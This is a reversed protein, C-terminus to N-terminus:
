RASRWRTVAAIVPGVATVHAVFVPIWNPPPFSQHPLRTLPLAVLQMFMYFFAGFLVGSTLWHEQVWRFIRYVAFYMAAAGLAVCVHLALGLLMTAAGGDFSAKGLVSSAIGQLMRFPSGGKVLVLVIIYGIDTVACVLGAPLVVVAVDVLSFRPLKSTM